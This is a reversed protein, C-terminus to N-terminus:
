SGGGVVVCHQPEQAPFPDALHLVEMGTLGGMRQSHSPCDVCAASSKWEDQPFCCSGFGSWRSYYKKLYCVFIEWWKKQIFLLCLSSSLECGAVGETRMRRFDEGWIIRKAKNNLERAPQIQKRERLPAEHKTSISNDSKSTHCKM